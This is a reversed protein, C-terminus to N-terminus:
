RLIWKQGESINCENNLPRINRILNQQWRRSFAFQRKTYEGDGELDLFLDLQFVKLSITFVTVFKNGWSDM